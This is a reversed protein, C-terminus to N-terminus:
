HDDCKGTGNKERSDPYFAAPEVAATSALSREQLFSRIVIIELFFRGSEADSGGAVM